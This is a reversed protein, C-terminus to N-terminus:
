TSLFVKLLKTFTFDLFGLYAGLITSIILVILTLKIIDNKKPWTVKTLELRVERLYSVVEKVPEFQILALSTICPKKVEKVPNL